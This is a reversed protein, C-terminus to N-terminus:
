PKRNVEGLEEKSQLNDIAFADWVEDRVALGNALPPTHIM